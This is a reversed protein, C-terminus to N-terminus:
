VRRWHAPVDVVRESTSGHEAVETRPAAASAVDAIRVGLEETRSAVDAVGGVTVARYAAAALEAEDGVDIAVREAVRVPAADRGITLERLEVRVVRLERAVDDLDADLASPVVELSVLQVTAAVGASAALM